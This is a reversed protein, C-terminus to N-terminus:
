TPCREALSICVPHPSYRRLRRRHSNSEKNMFAFMRSLWGTSGEDNGPSSAAGMGSASVFVPVAAAQLATEVLPQASLDAVPPFQSQLTGTPAASVLLMGWVFLAVLLRCFMNVTTRPYVSRALWLDLRKLYFRGVLAVLSISRELFTNKQCNSFTM